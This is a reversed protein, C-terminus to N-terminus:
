TQRYHLRITTRSCPKRTASPSTRYGRRMTRQPGRRHPGRLPTQSRRTIPVPRSPEASRWRSQGRMAAPMTHTAAKPAPHAAGASGTAGVTDPAGIGDAEGPRVGLAVGGGFESRDGGGASGSKPGRAMIRPLPPVSVPLCSPVKRTVSLQTSRSVVASTMRSTQGASLVVHSESVWRTSKRFTSPVDTLAPSAVCTTRPPPPSLLMSLPVVLSAQSEDIGHTWRGDSKQGSVDRHITPATSTCPGYVRAGCGSRGCGNAGVNRTPGLDRLIQHVVAQGVVRPQHRWKSPLDEGVVLRGHDM